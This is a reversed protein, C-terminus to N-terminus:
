DRATALSLAAQELGARDTIPNETPFSSTQYHQAYPFTCAEFPEPACLGDVFTNHEVSVSSRPIELAREVEGPDFVLGFPVSDPDLLRGGYDVSLNGELWLRQDLPRMSASELSATSALHQGSTDGKVDVVLDGAHTTTIV